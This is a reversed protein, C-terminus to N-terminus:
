RRGHLKSTPDHPRFPAGPHPLLNNPGGHTDWQPHPTLPHSRESPALRRKCSRARNIPPLAHTAITEGRVNPPPLLVAALLANMAGAGGKIVRILVPGLPSPPLQVMCNTTIPLRGAFMRHGKNPRNLGIATQVAPTPVEDELNTISIIVLGM